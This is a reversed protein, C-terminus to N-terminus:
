DFSVLSTYDSVASNPSVFGQISFNMQSAVFTGRVEITNPSVSTCQGNIIDDFANCSISSM